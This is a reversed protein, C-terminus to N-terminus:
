TAIYVGRVVTKIRGQNKLKYVINRVKKENYGTQNMLAATNIGKQNLKIIDYVAEAATESRVPQTVKKQRSERSTKARSETKMKTETETEKKGPTEKPTECYSETKKAIIEVVDAMTRLGGALSKLFSELEKM